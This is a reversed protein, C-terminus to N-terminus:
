LVAVHDKILFRLVQANQANCLVKKAPLIEEANTAVKSTGFCEQIAYVTIPVQM